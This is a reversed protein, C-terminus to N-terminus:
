PVSIRAVRFGIYSWTRSQLFSDRAAVRCNVNMGGSFGGGRVNRFSDYFPDSESGRPDACWEWVNGSMDHLGWANQKKTGVPQTQNRSNGSYWAVESLKGGSYPGEEGARAAYEWWAEKPLVFQGGDSGGVIANIKTLFDQIDNWSVTEVPHNAGILRSPNEGMVAQWQAQTVETKAMWFGRSLTVEVQNEREGRGAESEPSGMMFKGAPCWCFTMSVGPAIEIVKEEGPRKGLFKASAAEAKAKAEAAERDAKAIAEAAVREAEAKAEAVERDAKAKAEAAEREAVADAEAAQREVVANAEAAEREAKAKRAADIRESRAKLSSSVIFIMLVSVTAMGAIGAILRVMKRRRLFEAMLQEAKKLSFATAQGLESVPNSALDRLQKTEYKAINFQRDTLLIKLSALILAFREVLTKQQKLQNKRKGSFPLRGILQNEIYATLDAFREVLGLQENLILEPRSYDIDTFRLSGIQELTLKASIYNQQALYAETHALMTLHTNHLEILEHIRDNVKNLHNSADRWVEGAGEVYARLAQRRAAQNPLNKLGLSEACILLEPHLDTFTESKNWVNEDLMLALRAASSSLNRILDTTEVEAQQLGTLSLDSATNLEDQEWDELLDREQEWEDVPDIIKNELSSTRFIPRISFLFKKWNLIREVEAEVEFFFQELRNLRTTIIALPDEPLCGVAVHAAIFNESESRYRRLAQMDNFDSLIDSQSELVRLNAQLVAAKRILTDNM